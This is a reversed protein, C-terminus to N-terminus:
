GRCEEIVRNFEPWSPIVLDPLGTVSVVFRGRSYAVADLQSDRPALRAAAYPPTDGAPLAPFAKLGASARLTMVAGNGISGSRSLYIQSGAKDCRAIFTADTGPQGFLAVAGRADQRLVWNGPSLPWDQWNEPLPVPVVVPRPAAVPPSPPPQPTPEQPAGVCAALLAFPILVPLNRM